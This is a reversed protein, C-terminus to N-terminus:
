TPNWVSPLTIGYMEPINSGLSHEFLTEFSILNTNERKRSIDKFWSAIIASLSVEPNLKWGLYVTEHM